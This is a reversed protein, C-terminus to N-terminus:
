LTEEEEEEEWKIDDGEDDGEDEWDIYNGEDDEDCERGEHVDSIESMLKWDGEDEEETWEVSEEWGRNWEEERVEEEREREMKEVLEKMQTLVPNVFRPNSFRANTSMGNLIRRLGKSDKNEMAIGWAEMYFRPNVGLRGGYRGEMRERVENNIKVGHSSDHGEMVKIVGEAMRVNKAKVAAHMAHCAIISKQSYAMGRRTNGVYIKFLNSVSTYHSSQLLLQTLCLIDWMHLRGIKVYKFSDSSMRSYIKQALNQRRLKLPDLPDIFILNSNKIGSLGPIESPRQLKRSYPRKQLPPRTSKLISCLDLYSSQLIESNTTQAETPPNSYTPYPDPESEDIKSILSAFTEWAKDFEETEIARLCQYKLHISETRVDGEM